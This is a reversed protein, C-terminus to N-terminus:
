HGWRCFVTGKSQTQKAVSHPFVLGVSAMIWYVLLWYWVEPILGMPVMERDGAYLLAAMLFSGAGMPLLFIASGDALEFLVFLIGFIVWFQPLYLWYSLSLYVDLGVKGKCNRLSCFAWWYGCYCRVASHHNKCQTIGNLMRWRVLGTWRLTRYKRLIGMWWCPSHCKSTAM